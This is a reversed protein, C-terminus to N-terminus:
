RVKSAKSNEDAYVAGRRTMIAKWIKEEGLYSEDCDLVVTVVYSNV